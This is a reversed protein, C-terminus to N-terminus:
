YRGERRDIIELRTRWEKRNCVPRPDVVRANNDGNTMWSPGGSGRRGDVRGRGAVGHIGAGGKGRGARGEGEERGRTQRARGPGEADAHM